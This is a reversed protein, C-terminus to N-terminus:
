ESGNACDPDASDVRGDHDNDVGDSCSSPPYLHVNVSAPAGTTVVVTEEPVPATDDAPAIAVAQFDLMSVQITWTGPAVSVQHTGPTCLTIVRLGDGGSEAGSIVVSDIGHQGCGSAAPETGQFDWSVDVTGDQSCAAGALALVVLLLASRGFM